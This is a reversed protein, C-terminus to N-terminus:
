KSVDQELLHRHRAVYRIVAARMVKSMTEGRIKAIKLAPLWYEDEIQSTRPPTARRSPSPVVSVIVLSM